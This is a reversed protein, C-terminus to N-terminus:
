RERPRILKVLTWQSELAKSWEGGSRELLAANATTLLTSAGILVSVADEWGPNHGLCLVTGWSDDWSRSAEQLAGLGGLYLTKLFVAPVPFEPDFVEKMQDWTQRTRLATSSVVADPRWGLNWIADAVGPAERRGEGNLPRDHDSAGEQPWDSKAHRMLILRLPSVIM